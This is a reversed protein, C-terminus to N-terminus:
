DRRLRLLDAVFSASKADIDENVIKMAAKVTVTSDSPLPIVENAIAETTNDDQPITGIGFGGIWATQPPNFTKLYNRVSAAAGGMYCPGGVVIVAYGASNPAQAYNIAAQSKIGALNVQFGEEALDNAIATAATKANGSMGPDFVVLADGFLEGKAAITQSGNADSFNSGLDAAAAGFIAAVSILLIAVIVIIIKLIKKM